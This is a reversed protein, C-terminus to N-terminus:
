GIALKIGEKVSVNATAVHGLVRAVKQANSGFFAILQICFM